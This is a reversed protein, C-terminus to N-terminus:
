CLFGSECLNCVFTLKSNLYQLDSLTPDFHTEVLFDSVGGRYHICTNTLHAGFSVDEKRATRGVGRFKKAEPTAFPANWHWKQTVTGM